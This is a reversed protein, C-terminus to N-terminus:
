FEPPDPVEVDPELDPEIDPDRDLDDEDYPPPEEDDPDFPERTLYDDLGPVTISDRAM